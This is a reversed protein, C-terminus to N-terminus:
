LSDETDTTRPEDTGPDNEEDVERVEVERVERSPRPNRMDWGPPYEVHFTQANLYRRFFRAIVPLLRRRAEPLMLLLGAADTLIGPTLLFAAGLLVLLGQLLANKPLRGRDIEREIERLVHLGQMRALTAGALGTVIVLLITSEFGIVRGVHILLVLELLPVVVFLLFLAQM